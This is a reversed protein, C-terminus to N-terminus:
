GAGEKGADRRMDRLAAIAPLIHEEGVLIPSGIEDPTADTSGTTAFNTLNTATPPAPTLTFVHSDRYASRRQRARRRKGEGVRTRQESRM